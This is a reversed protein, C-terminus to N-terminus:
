KFKDDFLVTKEELDQDLHFLPRRVPHVLSDRGELLLTSSAAHVTAVDGDDRHQGRYSAEEAENEEDDDEDEFLTSRHRLFTLENEHM